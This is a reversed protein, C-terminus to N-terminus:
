EMSSTVLLSKTWALLVVGAEEKPMWKMATNYTDKANM